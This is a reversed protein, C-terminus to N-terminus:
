VVHIADYTFTEGDAMALVVDYSIDSNAWITTSQQYFRGAQNAIQPNVITTALGADAFISALNTTGTNYITLMSGGSVLGFQTLCPEALPIVFRGSAM